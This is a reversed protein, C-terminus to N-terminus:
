AGQGASASASAAAICGSCSGASGPRVSHNTGPTALLVSATGSTIRPSSVWNIPSISIRACSGCPAPRWLTHRGPVWLLHTSRSCPRM